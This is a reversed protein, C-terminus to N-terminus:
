DDICGEFVDGIKMQKSTARVCQCARGAGRERLLFVAYSELVTGFVISYLYCLWVSLDKKEWKHKHPM